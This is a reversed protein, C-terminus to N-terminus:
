NVCPRALDGRKKKSNTVIRSGLVAMGRAKLPNQPYGMPPSDESGATLFVYSRLTLGLGIEVSLRVIKFM